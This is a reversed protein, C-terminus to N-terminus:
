LSFNGKKINNLSTKADQYAGSNKYKKIILSYLKKAQKTKNQSKYYEAVKLYMDPADYADPFKRAIEKLQKYYEKDNNQVMFCKAVGVMAAKKLLKNNIKKSAESFYNNAEEYNQKVLAIKGLYLLAQKGYKTSKYNERLLNLSDKAAAYEQQKFLKSARAYDQLAMHNITSRHNLYAIMIIVIAIVIGGVIAFTKWTSKFYDVARFVFSIFKDEKKHKPFRASM